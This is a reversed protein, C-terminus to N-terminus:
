IVSELIWWYLFDQALLIESGGECYIERLCMKSILQRIVSGSPQVGSIGFGAVPCSKSM